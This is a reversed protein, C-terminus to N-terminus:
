VELLEAEKNKLLEDIHETHKHTVEDLTKEARRV